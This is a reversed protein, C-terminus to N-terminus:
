RGALERRMASLKSRASGDIVQDGVRAMIGGLIGPDVTTDLRVDKDVIEKLLSEVRGRQDDSMPVATAVLAREIGRHADLLREYQELIRPLIFSMSRSALLSMLNRPLEAVSDGLVEAIVAIKKDVPVQPSDVFLAFEQNELARALVQLEELWGDPANQELAIQFVAQAYRRASAVPPM